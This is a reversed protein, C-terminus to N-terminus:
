IYIDKFSIHKPTIHYLSSFMGEEQDGRIHENGQPHARLLDWWCDKVQDGQRM